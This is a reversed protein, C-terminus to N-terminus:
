RGAHQRIEDAILLPSQLPGFHGLHRHVRLETDPLAAALLPVTAALPSGEEGGCACMTPMPAASVSAVTVGGSGEFTRAESEPTCKLTVGGDPLDRFGHEVYAALCGASLENLPPRAAYRWLAAAMSPFSGQRRRAGEAMPNRGSTTEPRGAPSPPMIAPEYVYAAAFLSSDQAAAQLAVAAGMSHGVVCALPEASISRVVAILEPVLRLWGFDGDGPLSADGHGPFDVAWVHFDATLQRALPGYARGCFGTAHCILLEPGDGGLDHVALRSGRDTTVYTPTPRDTM